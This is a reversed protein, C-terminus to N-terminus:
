YEAFYVEYNGTSNDDWAIYLDNKNSPSAAVVPALSFGRNHSVNITKGFSNGGDTSKALLIDHKGALYDNWTVYLNDGTAAMRARALDGVDHGLSVPIYPNILIYSDVLIIAVLITTTTAVTFAPQRLRIATTQQKQQEEGGRKREEVKEREKNKYFYFVVAIVSGIIIPYFPPDTLNLFLGFIPPLIYIVKEMYDQERVPYDIGLVSYPNADGKTKIIRNGASDLKIDVIRHVIVRENGILSKFSIIDGRKLNAFSTSGAGGVSQIFVIDNRNITPVMSGTAAAGFFSVGGIEMVVLFVLKFTMIGIVLIALNKFEVPTKSERGPVNKMIIKRLDFIQWVGAAIWLFVSIFLVYGFFSDGNNNYNSQGVSVGITIAFGIVLVIMGRRTFGLYLHGTGPLILGLLSALFLRDEYSM